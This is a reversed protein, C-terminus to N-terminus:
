TISHNLHIGKHHLHCVTIWLDSCQAVKIDALFQNWLYIFLLTM